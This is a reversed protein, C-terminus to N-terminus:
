ASALRPSMSCKVAYLRRALLRGMVRAQFAVHQFVITTSRSQQQIWEPAAPWCGVGGGWSAIAGLNLHRVGCVSHKM